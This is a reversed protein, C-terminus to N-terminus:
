EVLLAGLPPGVIAAVGFVGSLLGQIRARETPEYLDGAIAYAVPQIRGAGLRRVARFAILSLLGRTFGCMTSGILFLGAGAL